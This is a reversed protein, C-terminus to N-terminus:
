TGGASRSDLSRAASSARPPALSLSVDNEDPRLVSGPKASSGTRAASVRGSVLGLAGAVGDRSCNPEVTRAFANPSAPGVVDPSIGRVIGAVFTIGAIEASSTSRRAFSAFDESLRAFAESLRAFDESLGALAESSGAFSLTTEISLARSRAALL